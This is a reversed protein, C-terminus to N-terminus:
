LPCEDAFVSCSFILFQCVVNVLGGKGSAIALAAERRAKAQQQAEKILMARFNAARDRNPDKKPAATTNTNTEHDSAPDSDDIEMPADQEGDTSMENDQALPSAPTSPSETAAPTSFMTLISGQRTTSKSVTGDANIQLTPKSMQHEPNAKVVKKEVKPLPQARRLEVDSDSSEAEVVADVTPISDTEQHQPPSQQALPVDGSSVPPSM